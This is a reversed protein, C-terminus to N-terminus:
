PAAEPRIMWINGTLDTLAFVLSDATVSMNFGADVMSRGAQHFHVVSFPSGALRKTAPNLRQAWICRFGDRDSLFYLTAGDPSWVLNRDM